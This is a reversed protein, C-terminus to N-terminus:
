FLNQYHVHYNGIRMRKNWMMSMAHLSHMNDQIAQRWIPVHDSM